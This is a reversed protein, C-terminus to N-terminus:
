VHAARLLAGAPRGRNATEQRPLRSRGGTPPQPVPPPLGPMGSLPLNRPTVGCGLTCKSSSTQVRASLRRIRSLTGPNSDLTGAAVKPTADQGGPIEQEGILRKAHAKFCIM